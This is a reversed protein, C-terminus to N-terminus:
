KSMQLLVKASRSKEIVILQLLCHLRIEIVHGLFEIKSSYFLKQCIDSTYQHLPLNCQFIIYNNQRQWKCVM